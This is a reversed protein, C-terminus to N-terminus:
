KVQIQKESYLIIQAIGRYSKIKGTVCVNKGRYKVEPANFKERNEGWIVATFVHDPYAEGLNLFTPEGNSSSAYHTSAVLGCVTAKEGIHNQAMHAAYESSFLSITLVSIYFIIKGFM